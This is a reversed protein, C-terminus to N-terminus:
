TALSQEYDSIPERKVISQPSCAERAPRIFAIEFSGASATM